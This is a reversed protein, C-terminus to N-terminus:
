KSQSEQLKFSHLIPKQWRSRERDRTMFGLVWNPEMGQRDFKMLIRGTMEAHNVSWCEVLCVNYHYHRSSFNYRYIFHSKTEVVLFLLRFM